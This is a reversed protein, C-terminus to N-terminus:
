GGDRGGGVEFDAGVLVWGQDRELGEGAAVVVVEGGGFRRGPLPM